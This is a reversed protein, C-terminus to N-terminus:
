FMSSLEGAYRALKVEGVSTPAEVADADEGAGSIESSETNTHPVPPLEPGIIGSLLMPGKLMGRASFDAHSAALKDQRQNILLMQGLAENRNTRRWPDKVASRHRSETISSCLGNPAGFQQILSRYHYISHQRPLSFTLRVDTDIFIQREQHYRTLAADIQELTRTDIQSRRVLYCFEMFASM